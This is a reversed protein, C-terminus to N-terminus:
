LPMHLKASIKNCISERQCTDCKGSLRNELRHEKWSALDEQSSNHLFDNLLAENGMLMDLMDNFENDEKEDNQKKANVMAEHLEFMLRETLAQHGLILSDGQPYNSMSLVIATADETDIYTKGDMQVLVRIKSTRDQALSEIVHQIIRHKDDGNMLALFDEPKRM